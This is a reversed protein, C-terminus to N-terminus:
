LYIKSMFNEIETDSPRNLRRKLGESVSLNFTDSYIKATAKSIEKLVVTNRKKLMFKNYVDYVDKYVDLRKNENLDLLFNNQITNITPTFTDEYEVNICPDLGVKNM